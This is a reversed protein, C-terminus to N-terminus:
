CYTFCLLLLLILSRFLLRIISDLQISPSRTSPFFYKGQAVKSHSNNSATQPQQQKLLGILNDKHQIIQILHQRERILERHIALLPLIFSDRIVLADSNSNTDSRNHSHNTNSNKDSNQSNDDEDNSNSNNNNNNKSSNAFLERKVQSLPSKGKNKLDVKSNPHNNNSKNPEIRKCDFTWQFVYSSLRTSFSFSLVPDGEEYSITYVAKKYKTNEQKIPSNIAKKNNNPLNTNSEKSSFETSTSNYQNSLLFPKILNLLETTNM